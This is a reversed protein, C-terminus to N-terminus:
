GDGAEAAAFRAQGLHYGILQAPLFYLLPSLAETVAPLHLVTRASADFATEGATTVVHVHGGLRAAEHVTDVAREVLPGSPVFLWLPEGAKQSNYHHFEELQIAVAHAPTTEKVKAAGVIASALNPGAGAFLYMRETVEAAAQARTAPDGAAITVTMLGPLGDLEALLAEAGPVRRIVGVLAALRLLLALPATSSQTPWGVRTADVLLAHAAHDDLTSGARNTVALTLARRAQAVLLAHVTRTTEGSSSLAVVLSRETVTPALYWALELSQVAECPVGLMTQFALRAAGAVALSDGAGTLFVRDPAHDAIRAAAAALADANARWNRAVVTPQDLLEPWTSDTRRRREPDLPGDGPLQAAAAREAGGVRTLLRQAEDDLCSPDYGRRETADGAM